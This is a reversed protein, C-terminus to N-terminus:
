NKRPAARLGPRHACHPAQQVEWVVGAKALLRIMWWGPDLQWWHLGFRASQPFAHHNNHWGEGMSIFGFLSNNRGNEGAGEVIWDLTGRTHAVYNVFWHGTTAVLIRGFTGWVLGPTGFTLVLLFTIPIQQILWTHDLFRLFRDNQYNAATLLPARPQHVPPQHDCHLYWWWDQLVGHNYSYWEPCVPQSQWYDRQDHVNM